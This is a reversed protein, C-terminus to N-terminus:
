GVRHQHLLRKSAEMGIGPSVTVLRERGSTLLESISREVNSEFRLDRNTLIGM